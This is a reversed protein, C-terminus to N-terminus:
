ESDRRRDLDVAPADITPFGIGSPSFYKKLREALAVANKAGLEPAIRIIRRAVRPWSWAAERRIRNALRALDRRRGRVDALMRDLDRQASELERAADDLAALLARPRQQM